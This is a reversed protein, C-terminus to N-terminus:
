SQTQTRNASAKPDAKPQSQSQAQNQQAPAPRPQPILSALAAPQLSAPPRSCHRCLLRTPIWDPGKALSTKIVCCCCCFLFPPFPLFPEQLARQWPSGLSTQVLGARKVAAKSGLLSNHSAIFPSMHGKAWLSRGRCNRTKLENEGKDGGAIICESRLFFFRPCTTCGKGQPGMGPPCAAIEKLGNKGRGCCAVGTEETTIFINRAWLQYVAQAPQWLMPGMM